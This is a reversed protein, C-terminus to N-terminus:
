PRAHRYGPSNHAKPNPQPIPIAEKPNRSTPNDAKLNPQPTPIAEKPNRLLAKIEEAMRMRGLCYEPDDGPKPNTVGEQAEEKWQIVTAIVAERTDYEDLLWQILVKFRGTAECVSELTMRRCHAEKDSVLM